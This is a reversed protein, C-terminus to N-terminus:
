PSVRKKASKKKYKENKTDFSGSYYFFDLYIYKVFNIERKMDNQM